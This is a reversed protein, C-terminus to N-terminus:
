QRMGEKSRSEYEFIRCKKFLDVDKATIKSAKLYANAITAISNNVLKKGEESKANLKAKKFKRELYETRVARRIMSVEYVDYYRKGMSNMYECINKIVSESNEKDENTESDSIHLNPFFVAPDKLELKEMIKEMQKKRPIRTCNEYSHYTIKKLGLFDAFEQLSMDLKRRAAFLVENKM